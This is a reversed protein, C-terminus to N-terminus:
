ARGTNRELLDDVGDQAESISNLRGLSAPKCAIINGRARAWRPCRLYICYISHSHSSICAKIQRRRSLKEEVIEQDRGHIQLVMILLILQLLSSRLKRLFGAKRSSESSTSDEGTKAFEVNNNANDGSQKECNLAVGERDGGYSEDLEEKTLPQM